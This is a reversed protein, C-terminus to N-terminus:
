QSARVLRVADNNDRGNGDVHGNLFDIGWAYGANGAYPSSSWFSESPTEPFATSDIAPERRRRDVLSALEKVNPLRWAKGSTAAETKARRLADEYNFNLASGTCTSGNWSMGEACRRWVLGSAADAVEDGNFSFPAAGALPQTLLLATLLLHTSKM